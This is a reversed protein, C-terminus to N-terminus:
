EGSYEVPHKLGKYSILKAKVWGVLIKSEVFVPIRNEDNTVWVTMDEGEQFMSGEVLMPSFKICEVTGLADNEMNETGKYRFFTQHIENDLLLTVPITDGASLGTFNMSRAYYIM